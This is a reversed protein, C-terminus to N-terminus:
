NAIKLRVLQTKLAVVAAALEKKLQCHAAAM